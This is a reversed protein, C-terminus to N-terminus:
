STSRYILSPKKCSSKRRGQGRYSGQHLAVGLLSGAAMLHYQPTNECFYKLATLGRPAEQIEDFIILTENPDPRVGTVAEVAQLIREISFDTEFLTRMMQNNEFNVYAVSRYAVSAFEKM